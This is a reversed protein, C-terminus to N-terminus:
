QLFESRLEEAAEQGRADGSALLEAYVLWPPALMRGDFERWYVLEGFPKLAVVPGTRDPLLHLARQIGSRQLDLFVPVEAAHYFHQMAEAAPGGSLAYRVKEAALVESLRSLFEDASPEPFRYRGL